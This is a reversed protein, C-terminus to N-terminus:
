EGGNLKGGRKKLLIIALGIGLLIMVSITGVVYDGTNVGKIDTSIEGTATAKFEVKLTGDDGKKFGDGFITDKTDQDISESYPWKWRVEYQSMGYPKLKNEKTDLKFDKAKVWNNSDGIVYEGDKLMQFEMPLDNLKTENATYILNANLDYTINSEHKNAIHFTDSGSTNPAIVKKGDPSKVVTEGSDSKYETQFLDIGGNVVLGEEAYCITTFLMTIVISLIAIYKIKRM